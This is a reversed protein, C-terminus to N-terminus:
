QQRSTAWTTGRKQSVAFRFHQDFYDNDIYYGVEVGLEDILVIKDHAPNRIIRYLKGEKFTITISKVCKVWMGASM